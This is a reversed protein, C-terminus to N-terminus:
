LLPYRKILRRRIRGRCWAFDNQGFSSARCAVRDRVRPSAAAFVATLMHRPAEVLAEPHPSKCREGPCSWARQV